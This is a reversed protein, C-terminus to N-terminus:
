KVTFPTGIPFNAGLRVPCKNGRIVVQVRRGDWSWDVLGIRTYLNRIQMPAKLWDPHIGPGIVLVPTVSYEDVAALMDLQLLLMEAATWYHPTVGNPKVWGRYKEWQNYSNEEGDSEWWTYLGPSSQNHIFWNLLNWVRDPRNMYLWQHAEALEFYTWLPRRRYQNKEDFKQNWRQYLSSEYGTADSVIWTPWLGCIYTRDNQADPSQYARAWAQKIEQAHSRWLTSHSTYKLRDAMESARMLGLYSVANVYLIPRHWDMKGNILGDKAPECIMNLDSRNIHKPVVPGTFSHFLPWQATRMDLLLQVKRNVHSWMSQDFQPQSIRNGLEGMAWLALGPADAESGFGGFFDNEAFAVVLQRAVDVHGARILAVIVYAGDRLWNVPYNLPDGPRTEWRVLGMLINAVQANLCKVFHEDAIQIDPIAVTSSYRLMPIPVQAIDKITLIQSSKTDLILRAFGWGSKSQVSKSQSETNMWKATGEEGLVVSKPSPSISVLYRNNVALQKGNWELQYVPGGAPGVSRIAVELVNNTNTPFLLEMQWTDPRISHWIAKYLMSDCYIGPITKPNRWQWNQQIKNIDTRESAAILNNNTDKIWVSIGFSGPSPSFNGGPEYYAKNIELSGPMGLVVHGIGQPWPDDSRTQMANLVNSRESAKVSIVAATASCFIGTLLVVFCQLILKRM